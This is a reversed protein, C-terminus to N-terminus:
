LGIEEKFYIMNELVQRATPRDVAAPSLMSAVLAGVQGCMKRVEAREEMCESDGGERFDNSRVIRNLRNAFMAVEAKRIGGFSGTNMGLTAVTESEMCSMECILRQSGPMMGGTVLWYFVLGLSYVDVPRGFSYRSVLDPRGNEKRGTFSVTDPVALEPAMWGRSGARDVGGVGEMVRFAVPNALFANGDILVINGPKIDNHVYVSGDPLVIEHIASVAGAIQVAWKFFDGPEFPLDDKEWVPIGGLSKEYMPIIYAPWGENEHVQHTNDPWTGSDLVPLINVERLSCPLNRELEKFFFVEQEIFDCHCVMQEHPLVCGPENLNRTQVTKLAYPLSSEKGQVKLVVWDRTYSFVCYDKSFEYYDDLRKKAPVNKTM